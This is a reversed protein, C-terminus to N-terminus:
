GDHAREGAELERVRRAFKREFDRADMRGKFAVRGAIALVPISLGFRARLAPDEEVNLERLEYPEPVRARALEAKLEDCLPCGPKTYLELLIPAPPPAQARTRGGLRGRIRELLRELM